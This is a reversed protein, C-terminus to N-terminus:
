KKIIYKYTLFGLVAAGLVGLTITIEKSIINKKDSKIKEEDKIKDINENISNKSSSSSAKTKLFNEVCKKYADKKSKNILPKRGCVAIIEDKFKNRPRNGIATIIASAAQGAAQGATKALADNNYYIDESLEINSLGDIYKVNIAM